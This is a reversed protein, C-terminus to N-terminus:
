EAPIETGCTLYILTTFYHILLPVYNSKKANICPSASKGRRQECVAKKPTSNQGGGFARKRESVAEGGDLVKIVALKVAYLFRTPVQSRVSVTICPCLKNSFLESYLPLSVWM